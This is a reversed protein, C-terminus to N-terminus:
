SALPHYPMPAGLFVGASIMSLSLLSILVPSALGLTLARSTSRPPVTSPPVGASKLLSMAASVSLHALTILHAFMLVSHLRITRFEMFGTGHTCSGNRRQVTNKWGVVPDNSSARHQGAARSVSKIAGHLPPLRDPPGGEPVSRGSVCWPG